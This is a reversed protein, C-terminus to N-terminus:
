RCITELHFTIANLAAPRSSMLLMRLNDPKTIKELPQGSPYDCKLSMTITTVGQHEM